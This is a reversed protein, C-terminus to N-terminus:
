SRLCNACAALAKWEHSVSVLYTCQLSYYVWNLVRQTEKSQVTRYLQDKVKVKIFLSLHSKESCVPPM